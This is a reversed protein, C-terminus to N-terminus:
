SSHQYSIIFSEIMSKRATSDELYLKKFDARKLAEEQQIEESTVRM